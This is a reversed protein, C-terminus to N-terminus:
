EIRLVKVKLQSARKKDHYIRNTSKQFDAESCQYIDVFKQPNRDVLPFWSNQVQVMIRHGKKFTHAIDPLEFKVKEVKGPIFPEPKEFSKRYRGRFIEGRVLMQYGGLPVDIQHDIPSITDEPFVDILKVVYDADTGTISVFLDATLPGTFTIDETLIDTKYSKVDPRLSLFRQDDTMYERTRNKHAKEEYPVPKLPDSIYEDYSENENPLSFGLKGEPQFYLTRKMINAPPWTDFTKWQNTGTVFIYAEPFNMKGKDKLYYDFFRLELEQYSLNADQGWYVNGLRDASGYAWQGHSWPGMVLHNSISLPNQKEIATYTHLAGWLDEADFWGGVTMVAPKVNKLYKLPNRSKWFDDYNPHKIANNWFKISDGLYKIKINRIPGVSDLFFAFNGEKPYNFRPHGVRSLNHRPQGFSSFFSFCDLLFFAGNHHMDDGIFWDTCPAQPSVAKIAPHDSLIAMTSYFGPYSIGMVGVKGNNHPVNKIIWDVADYTDSAEDIDRNSKKNPNFPRIDEFTGESMYQGRVDQFALIYNENVYRGYVGLYYNFNNKGNPEINYPTRTFLIPYDQTTDIPTYYSTFLKVGDRMTIYVEQKNYKQKASLPNDKPQAYLSISYFALLFIITIKRFSFYTLHM